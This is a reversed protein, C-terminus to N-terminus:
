GYIRIIERAYALKDEVRQGAPQFSSWLELNGPRNDSKNGNKHHVSEKPLLKRGLLQEMIFRHEYVLRGHENRTMVYGSGIVFKKKRPVLHM